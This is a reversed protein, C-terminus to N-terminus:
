HKMLLPLQFSLVFVAGFRVWRLWWWWYSRGRYDDFLFLMWLWTLMSNCYDFSRGFVHSIESHLFFNSFLFSASFTNLSFYCSPQYLGCDIWFHGNIEIRRCYNKWITDLVTQLHQDDPKKNEWESDSVAQDNTRLSWRQQDIFRIRRSQQKHKNSGFRFSGLM